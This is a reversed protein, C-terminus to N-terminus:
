SSIIAAYNMTFKSKGTSFTAECFLGETWYIGRAIIKSSTWLFELVPKLLTFYNWSGSAKNHFLFKAGVQAKTSAWYTIRAHIQIVAGATVCM